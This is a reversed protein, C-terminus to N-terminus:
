AKFINSIIINNSNVYSNRNSNNNFMSALCHCNAIGCSFLANEFRLRALTSDVEM